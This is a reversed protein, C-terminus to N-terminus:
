QAQVMAEDSPVYPTAAAWHHEFIVAHAESAEEGFRDFSSATRRAGALAALTAGGALGILLVVGVWSRWRGRLEARVWLWVGGTM